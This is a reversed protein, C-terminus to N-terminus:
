TKVEPRQGMKSASKTKGKLAKKKGARSRFMELIGHLSESHDPCRTEFAFRVPPPPIGIKPKSFSAIRNPDRSISSSAAPRSRRVGGVTLEQRQGPSSPCDARCPSSPVRRFPSLSPPSELVRLRFGCCPVNSCHSEVIFGNKWSAWDTRGRGNRLTEVRLHPAGSHRVAARPLLSRCTKPLSVIQSKRSFSLLAQWTNPTGLHSYHSYALDARGCFASSEDIGRYIRM